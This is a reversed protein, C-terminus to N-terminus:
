PREYDEYPPTAALYGELAARAASDQRWPELVSPASVGTAVERADGFLNDQWAHDRMYLPPLGGGPGTARLAVVATLAATAPTWAALFSEVAAPPAHVSELLSVAYAALFGKPDGELHVVDSWLAELVAVVYATSVPTGGSEDYVRGRDQRVQQPTPPTLAAVGARAQALGEATVQIVSPHSASGDEHWVYPGYARGRLRVRPGLIDVPALAADALALWETGLM